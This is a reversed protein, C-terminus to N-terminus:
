KCKFTYTMIKQPKLHGPLTFQILASHSCHEFGCGYSNCIPVQWSFLPNVRAKVFLLLDPLKKHSLKLVISSSGQLKSTEKTQTELSSGRWFFGLSIRQNQISTTLPCSGIITQTVFYHDYDHGLILVRKSRLFNYIKPM